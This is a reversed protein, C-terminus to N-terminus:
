SLLQQKKYSNYYFVSDLICAKLNLSLYTRLSISYRLPHVVYAYVSLSLEPM